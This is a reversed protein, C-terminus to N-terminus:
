PTLHRSSFSCVDDTAHRFSELGHAWRTHGQVLSRPRVTCAGVCDVQGHVYQWRCLWICAQVFDGGSVRYQALGLARVLKDLMRAPTKPDPCNVNHKICLENQPSSAILM